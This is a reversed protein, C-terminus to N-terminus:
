CDLLLHIFILGGQLKFAMLGFRPFLFYGFSGAVINRHLASLEKYLQVPHPGSM